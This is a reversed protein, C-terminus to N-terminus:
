PSLHRWCQGQEGGVERFAEVLELGGPPKLRLPQEVDALGNLPINVSSLFHNCVGAAARRAQHSDELAFRAVQGLHSQVEVEVTRLSHQGRRPLFRM